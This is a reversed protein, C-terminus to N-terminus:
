STKGAIHTRDFKGIERNVSNVNVNVSHNNLIVITRNMFLLLNTCVCVCVYTDAHERKPSSRLQSFSSPFVGVNRHEM